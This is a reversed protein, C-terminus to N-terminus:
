LMIQFYVQIVQLVGKVLLKTGTYSMDSYKYLTYGLTDSYKYLTHGLTDSYKYLTDWYTVMPM